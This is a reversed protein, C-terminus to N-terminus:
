TNNHRTRRASRANEKDKLDKNKLNKDPKATPRDLNGGNGM